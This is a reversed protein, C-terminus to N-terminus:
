KQGKKWLIGIKKLMNSNKKKPSTEDDLDESYPSLTNYNADFSGTRDMYKGNNEASLVAAAAEAAKRWQDSQVKLRRFEADMESNTVQAAELQETVRTARKSNKDAEETAYSLKMLADREAARVAEIEDNYKMCETERKKIESKLMMNEELISQLSSKSRELETELEFQKQSSENKGIKINLGENEESISQLETEKDMLNAKLEEIESRMKKLEAELELERTSKSFKIKEMLEYANRDRLISAIQQEQYRTESEELASKLNEVELKMSKLDLKLQSSEVIEENEGNVYSKNGIQEQYRTKSAELASKLEEAELKVSKLELKLQNSEVIEDDQGNVSSKNSAKVLDAELKGVLEKLSNVQSKSSELESSLSSYAKVIIKAAELEELTDKAREQAQAESKRCDGLQSGLNEIFSKAAELEVSLNQADPESKAVMELQIKLRQIENLASALSASDESHQKQVSNLESEWVKDREQSIKRLEQLRAEESASLEVLQRQSEELKETLAVLQKKTDEAESDINRKRTESSGLQDKAKKLDDQLQAIQSELESIRTPRRKQLESAPSRPSKREIVKPSRDKPTRCAQHPSVSDSESGTIKSQRATRPTAPSTRQPVELTGARDEFYYFLTYPMLIYLNIFCGVVQNQHRCRGAEKRQLVLTKRFPFDLTLQIEALGVLGGSGGFWIVAVFKELYVVDLFSVVIMVQEVAVLNQELRM